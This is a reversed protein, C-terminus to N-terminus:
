RRMRKRGLLALGAVGSGLLLLLGPEPIFRILLMASSAIKDTSGFPLNTYVQNPTVLQLMGGPQATSSTTSAPDHAWGKQVVPVFTREEGTTTIHDIVTMTKITWPGWQLSMRIGGYGGLTGSAGIGLGNAGTGPVGNVTTPQTFPLTLSMSCATNLLCLRVLGAVPMTGVNGTSTSAAGGSIPGLTGDGGQVGEFMIAAVGNGLEEPDTVYNIFTGTVHGRSAALRLTNLHASVVGASGNVTAVGGGPVGGTGFEGMDLTFTGEWNLAAASATGAMGLAFLGALLLTLLKRM